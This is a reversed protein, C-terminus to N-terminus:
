EMESKTILHRVIVDIIINFLTPSMPDGQILGKNPVFPDSTYGRQKLIAIQSDWYTSIIKWIRHGIGYQEM